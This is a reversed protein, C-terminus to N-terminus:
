AQAILTVDIIDEVMLVGDARLDRSAREILKDNFAGISREPETPAITSIM